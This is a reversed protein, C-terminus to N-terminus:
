INNRRKEQSQVTVLDLPMFIWHACTHEMQPPPLAITYLLLNDHAVRISFTRYM